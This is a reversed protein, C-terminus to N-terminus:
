SRMPRESWPTRLFIRKAQSRKKTSKNGLADWGEQIESDRCMWLVSTKTRLTCSLLLNNKLFTQHVPLVYFLRGPLYSFGKRRLLPSRAGPRNSEGWFFVFVDMQQRSETRFCIEHVSPTGFLGLALTLGRYPWSAPLLFLRTSWTILDHLDHTM